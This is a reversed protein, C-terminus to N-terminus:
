DRAINNGDVYVNASPQQNNKKGIQRESVSMHTSYGILLLFHSKFARLNYIERGMYTFQTYM